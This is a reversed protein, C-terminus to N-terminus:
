ASDTSAEPQSPDVTGADEKAIDLCIKLFDDYKDEIQGTRVLAAWCVAFAFDVGAKDPTLGRKRLQAAAVTHDVIRSLAQVQEEGSDRELLATYTTKKISM